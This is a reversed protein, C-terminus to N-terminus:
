INDWSTNQLCEMYHLRSFSILQVIQSDSKDMYDFGENLYLKKNGKESILNLVYNDLM